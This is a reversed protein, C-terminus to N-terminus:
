VRFGREADYNILNENVDTKGYTFGAYIDQINDMLPESTDNKSITDYADRLSTFMKKLEELNDTRNKFLNGALEREAYNYIAFLNKAPAYKFDLASRMEYICEMAKQINLKFEEENNSKHADLAENLYELFIDYVIVALQTRNARSIRRTFIQKKEHTM